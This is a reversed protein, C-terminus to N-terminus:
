LTRAEFAVFFNCIAIFLLKFSVCDAVFFPWFDCRFNFIFHNCHLSFCYLQMWNQINNLKTQYKCNELTLKASRLKFVYCVAYLSFSCIYLKGFLHNQSSLHMFRDLQISVIREGRLCCKSHFQNLLLCTLFKNSVFSFVFVTRNCAIKITFSVIKMWKNTCYFLLHTHVLYIIKYVAVIRTPKRQM